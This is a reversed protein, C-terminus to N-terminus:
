ILAADRNLRDVTRMNGSVKLPTEHPIFGHLMARRWRHVMPSRLIMIGIPPQTSLQVAAM